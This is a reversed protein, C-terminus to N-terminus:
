IHILSLPEQGFGAPNSYLRMARLQAPVKGLMLRERLIGARIFQRRQRATLDNWGPLLGGTRYHATLPGLLRRLSARIVWGNHGYKEAWKEFKQIATRVWADRQILPMAQALARVSHPLSAKGYSPRRLFSALEVPTANDAWDSLTLVDRVRREGDKSWLIEGVQRSLFPDKRGLLTRLRSVSSAQLRSTTGYAVEWLLRRDAEWSRSGVPNPSLQRAAERVNARGARVSATASWPFHKELASRVLHRLARTAPESM